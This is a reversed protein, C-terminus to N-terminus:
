VTWASVVAVAQAPNLRPDCCSTYRDGVSGLDAETSACETVDDPTTELHLGGAVGGAGRVAEVFRSVELAVTEVLRTKYGGPATVTNGHVPDSLWVVPHGAGRVADVLKPLRDAVNEAGMRAILTLRGPDRWPDLKECLALLEDPEMGPGVKCAVPNAVQSLLAVHAGEVQRTREGIWPWHTSGLFLRGKDDVRLMPAEYDLLLAEHSTWVLPEVVDRGAARDRWGLHEVIDGAAMYGTLIRLPDPRRIEPDAEPGNVMHGRFVPLEVGDIVETPKSRPKAFQGAIRGARLVPKGTRLGLTGALLDLLASKRAVHQRTCEQPDEACDGSQLVLAEGLAVKGLLTRLTALDDPQVLAPRSALAEGVRNVQPLDSWEPQQLAGRIRIERIVDEM